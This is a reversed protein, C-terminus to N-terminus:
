EVLLAAPQVRRKRPSATVEADELLKPGALPSWHQDRAYTRLRHCCACVVDCKELEKAIVDIKYATSVMTAVSKIKTGRVHDLDMAVPPWKKGCDACPKDKFADVFARAEKRLRASRANQSPRTKQYNDKRWKQLREFNTKQYEAMYEVKCDLCVGQRHVIGTRSSRRMIFAKEDKKKGCKSCKYKRM